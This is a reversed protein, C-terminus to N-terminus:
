RWKALELIKGHLGRMWDRFGLWDMGDRIAYQVGIERGVIKFKRERPRLGQAIEPPETGKSAKSGKSKGM